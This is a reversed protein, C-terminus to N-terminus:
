FKEALMCRTSGGGVQEIHRVDAVLVKYNKQLIKMNEDSYSNRARNSMIVTNNGGEDVLNFMNACMGEVENLSIELIKYPWNNLEPSVIEEILMKKTEPDKITDLCIVMHRHLITM